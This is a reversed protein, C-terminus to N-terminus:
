ASLCCLDSNEIVVIKGTIKKQEKLTKQKELAM